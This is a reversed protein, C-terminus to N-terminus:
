SLFFNLFWALCLSSVPLPKIVKTLTVSIPVDDAALPKAEYPDDSVDIEPEEPHDGTVVKVMPVSHFWLRVLFRTRKFVFTPLLCMM